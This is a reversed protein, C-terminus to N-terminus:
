YELQVERWSDSEEGNRAPAPRAPAAARPARDASSTLLMQQLLNLRGLVAVLRRETQKQRAIWTDLERELRAKEQELRVLERAARERSSPVARRTVGELTATDRLGKAKM